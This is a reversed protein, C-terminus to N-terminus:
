TRDIGGSSTKTKWPAFYTDQINSTSWTSQLSAGVSPLSVAVVRAPHWLLNSVRGWIKLYRQNMTFVPSRISGHLKYMTHPISGFHGHKVDYYPIADCKEPLKPGEELPLDFRRENGVHEM